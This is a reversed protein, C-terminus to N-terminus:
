CRGSEPIGRADALLAKPIVKASEFAEIRAERRNRGGRGFTRGRGRSCNTKAIVAFDYRGTTEM